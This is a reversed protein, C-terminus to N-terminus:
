FSNCWHRKRMISYILYFTVTSEVYSSVKLMRIERLAIKKILPDAESEVFKKIAVIQGSDRNRCKYVIGYSGEGIKSIKEYKDMM